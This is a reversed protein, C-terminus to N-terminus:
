QPLAKLIEDGNQEFIVKCDHSCLHATYEGVKVTHKPDGDMSLNCPACKTNVKDATGDALAASALADPLTAKEASLVGENVAKGSMEPATSSPSVPDSGGCGVTLTAVAIFLTFRILM